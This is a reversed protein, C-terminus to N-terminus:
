TLSQLDAKTNKIDSPVKRLISCLRAHAYQVYYVPNRESTDLALDLDFVMPSKVDYMLSFFRLVDLPVTDLLEDMLVYVGKRKSMRVEKGEQEMKMLQVLIIQLKNEDIGLFHLGAFLRAVDGHHDAGWLNVVKDFDRSFKDLHYALDGMIYTPEGDKKMLVRDKDDHFETSKMWWAGDEQYVKDSEKLKEFTKAVAGSEHLSKESFWVDFEIGMKAVTERISVLNMELAKKVVEDFSLNEDEAYIDKAIEKIYEGQYGDEPFRREQGQLRRYYYYVSEGLKEVQNGFDNIYYEREVSFGLREYVQALTDGAFGGRANPVTLPGTPNASIFEFQIKKSSGIQSSGFSDGQDLIEEVINLLERKDLFFNVFGPKAFKVERFYDDKSLEVQLMQGIEIPSKSLKAALVFSINTSYDGNEPDEPHELNIREDFEIRQDLLVNQIRKRIEGMVFELDSKEFVDKFVDEEIRKAPGKNNRKKAM